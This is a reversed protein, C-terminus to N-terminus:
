PWIFERIAALLPRNRRLVGVLLFAAAFGMISMLVYAWALYGIQVIVLGTTIALCVLITVSDRWYGAALGLLTAAITGTLMAM